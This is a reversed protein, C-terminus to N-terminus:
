AISTPHETSPVLSAVHVNVKMRIYVIDPISLIQFWQEGSISDCLTLPRNNTQWLLSSHQVRASATLLTPFCHAIPWVDSTYMHQFLLSSSHKVIYVSPTQWMEASFAAQGWYPECLHILPCYTFSSICVKASCRLKLCSVKCQLGIEAPM